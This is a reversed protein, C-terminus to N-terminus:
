YGIVALIMAIASLAFMPGWFWRVAQDIRVRPNTNRILVMIVVIAVYKLVSTLIRWGIFSVGGWFMTIIFLPM